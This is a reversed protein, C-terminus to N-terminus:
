ELGPPLRDPHLPLWPRILAREYWDRLWEHLAAKKPGDARAMPGAHYAAMFRCFSCRERMEDAILLCGVCAALAFPWRTLRRGTVSPGGPPWLAARLSSAVPLTLFLGIVTALGMFGPDDYPSWHSMVVTHYALRMFGFYGALFALDSSGIILVALGASALALAVRHWRGPMSGRAERLNVAQDYRRCALATVCGGVIAIAASPASQPHAAALCVGVVAVAAMLSWTRLGSGANRVAKGGTALDDGEIGIKTPDATRITVARVTRM